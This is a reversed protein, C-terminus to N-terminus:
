NEDRERKEEGEIKREGRRGGGEREIERERELGPIEPGVLNAFNNNQPLCSLTVASSSLVYYLKGSRKPTLVKLFIELRDGDEIRKRKLAPM